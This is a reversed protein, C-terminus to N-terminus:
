LKFGGTREPIIIEQTFRNDSVTTNVLINTQKQLTILNALGFGRDDGKSSFGEKQLILLPKVDHHCDNVVLITTTAAEKIFALRVSAEKSELTAVEEIANDLIIGLMRSIALQNDNHIVIAEAIELFIKVNILQAAILKAYIIQRLNANELLLLHEFQQNNTSAHNSIEHHFYSTLDDWAQNHIFGEISLLINQYDHRFKRLEDYQQQTLQLYERDIETRAKLQEQYIVQTENRQFLILTVAFLLIVTTLIGQFIELRTDHGAFLYDFLEMMQIYYFGLFITLPLLYAYPKVKQPLHRLLWYECFSLLAIIIFSVAFVGWRSFTLSPLFHILYNSISLNILPLTTLFVSQQVKKTHLYSLVFFVLFILLLETAERYIPSLHLIAFISGALIINKFWSLHVKQIFFAVLYLIWRALLVTNM